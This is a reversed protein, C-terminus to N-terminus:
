PDEVLLHYFQLQLLWQLAWLDAGANTLYLLGPPPWPHKLPQDSPIEGVVMADISFCIIYCADISGDVADVL